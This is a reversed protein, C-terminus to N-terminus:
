DKLIALVIADRLPELFCGQLKMELKMNMNSIGEIQNQQIWGGLLNGTKRMEDEWKPNVYSGTLEFLKWSDFVEDM